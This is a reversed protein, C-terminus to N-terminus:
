NTNLLEEESIFRASQVFYKLLLSLHAQAGGFSTFTFFVVNRIFLWQKKAAIPKTQM